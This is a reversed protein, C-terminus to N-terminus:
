DEADTLNLTLMGDGDGDGQCVEPLPARYSFAAM